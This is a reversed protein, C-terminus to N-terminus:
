LNEIERYCAAIREVGTRFVAEDPVLSLVIWDEQDFDFFFGPQVLVRQQELLALSFIEDDIDPLRVCQYWGGSAPPVHAWPGLLELVTRYNNYLRERLKQQFAQAQQLLPPCLASSLSSVSLAADLVYELAHTIEEHRRPPLTAQMWGVKLQPQGVSKSLGDLRFVPVPSPVPPVWVPHAAANFRYASFVEDIVLVLAHEQCFTLLASWEAPSPTHGTPNHPAVVLLMRTREPLSHLSDLDIEWGSAVERLFYPHCHLHELGALADLLPYGPLPVLISDGPDCFIKFLATYAESTSATVWISEPDVASGQQQALYQAIASRTTSSGQAAPHYGQWSDQASVAQLATPLDIRLGAHLPSGLTLDILSGALRLEQQKRFFPSPALDSPLRRSLM